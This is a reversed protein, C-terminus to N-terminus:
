YSLHSSWALLNNSIMLRNLGVVHKARDWTLVQIELTDHDNQTWLTINLPSKERQKYHHFQKFKRKM